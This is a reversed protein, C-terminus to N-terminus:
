GSVMESFRILAAFEEAEIEGGFTPDYGERVVARLDWGAPWEQALVKRILGNLSVLEEQSMSTKSMESDPAPERLSTM